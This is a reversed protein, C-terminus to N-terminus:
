HGLATVIALVVCVLGFVVGVGLLAEAVFDSELWEGLKAVTTEGAIQLTALSRDAVDLAAAKLQPLHDTPNNDRLVFM